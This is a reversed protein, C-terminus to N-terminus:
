AVHFLQCPLYHMSGLVSLQPVAREVASFTTPANGSQMIVPQRPVRHHQRVLPADGYSSLVFEAEQAMLEM